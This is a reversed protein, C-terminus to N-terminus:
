VHNPGSRPEPKVWRMLGRGGRHAEVAVSKTKVKSADEVDEAKFEGYSGGTTLAIVFRWFAGRM